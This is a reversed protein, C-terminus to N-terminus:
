KGCYPCTDTMMPGLSRKFSENIERKESYEKKEFDLIFDRVEKRSDWDLESYVKLLRKAKEDM